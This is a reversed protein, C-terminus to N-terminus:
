CSNPSLYFIHLLDQHFFFFFFFTRISDWIKIRFKELKAYLFTKKTMFGVPPASLIILFLLPTNHQGVLYIWITDQFSITGLSNGYTRQKPSWTPLLHNIQLVRQPQKSEASSALPILVTESIFVIALLLQIYFRRNLVKSNM